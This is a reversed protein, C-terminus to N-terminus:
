RRFALNRCACELLPCPDMGPSGKTRTQEMCANSPAGVNVYMNGDDDFTFTKTAHQHQEPFGTAILERIPNPVLQGEKMKYRMVEEDSSFYLYGKHIGIGTGPYDGFYAISDANGDGNTDRLGVIGNKNKLNSLSVYIDGNDNVAIHRGHGLNEAVVYATFGGPLTLTSDIFQSASQKVSSNSPSCGALLLAFLSSFLSM